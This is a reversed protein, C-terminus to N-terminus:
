KPPSGIYRVQAKMTLTTFTDDAAQPTGLFVRYFEPDTRPLLGTSEAAGRAILVAAACAQLPVRRGQALVIQPVVNVVLAGDSHEPTLRLETGAAPWAPETETIAGLKLALARLAAADAQPLVTIAVPKGPVASATFRRAIGGSTTTESMRVEPQLTRHGTPATNVVTGPEVGRVRFDRPQSPIVTFGGTGDMIVRPPDYREPVPIGREVVPPSVPLRQETRRATIAFAIDMPVIAPAQQLDALARRAADVRERQDTIRVPGGHVFVSRGQPSLTKKLAATVWEMPLFGIPVEETVAPSQAAASAIWGLALLAHLLTKM